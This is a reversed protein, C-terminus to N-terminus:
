LYASAARRSTGMGRRRSTQSGTGLHSASKSRVHVSIRTIATVIAEGFSASESVQTLLAFVWDDKRGLRRPKSEYVINAAHSLGTPTCRPM